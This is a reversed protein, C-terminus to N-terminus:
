SYKCEITDEIIDSTGNTGYMIITFKARYTGTGEVDFTKYFYGNVSSSYAVWENNTENIDVTKWFLGLFKKQIQVTVKAQTFVDAKANYTVGVHAQGPDAVTFTTSCKSCNVYFPSAELESGILHMDSLSSLDSAYVPFVNAGMGTILFFVVFFILM